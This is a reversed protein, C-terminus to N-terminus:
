EKKLSKVARDRRRPQPRAPSGVTAGPTRRTLYIQYKRSAWVPGALTPMDFVWEACYFIVFLPYLYFHGSWYTLFVKLVCERVLIELRPLFYRGIEALFDNPRYSRAKDCCERTIAIHGVRVIGFQHDPRRLKHVGCVTFLFPAPERDSKRLSQRRYVGPIHNHDKAVTLFLVLIRTEGGCFCEDNSNLTLLWYFVFYLYRCPGTTM